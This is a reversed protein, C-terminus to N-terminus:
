SRRRGLLAFPDWLTMNQDQAIPHRVPEGITEFLGVRLLRLHTHDALGLVIEPKILYWGLPSGASQDAAALLM